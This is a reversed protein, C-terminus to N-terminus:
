VSTFSQLLNLINTQIVKALWKQFTTLCSIQYCLNGYLHLISINDPCLQLARELNGKVAKLSVLKSRPSETETKVYLLVAKWVHLRCDDQDMSLAHNVHEYSEEVMNVRVCKPTSEQRSLKYLVRCLRWLVDINHAFQARNLLEYAELYEGKDYHIDALQIAQWDQYFPYQDSNRKYESKEPAPNSPPRLTSLLSPFWLAKQILGRQLASTKSSQLKLKTRLSTLSRTVNIPLFSM